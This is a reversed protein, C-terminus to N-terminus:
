KWVVLWNQLCIFWETKPATLLCNKLKIVSLCCVVVNPCMSSSSDEALFSAFNLLHKTVGKCHEWLNSRSYVTFMNLLEKALTSQLTSLALSQSLNSPNNTLMTPGTYTSATGTKYLWGWGLWVNAVTPIPVTGASQGVIGGDIWVTAARSFLM